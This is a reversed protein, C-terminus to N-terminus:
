PSTSAATQGAARGPAFAEPLQLAPGLLRPLDALDDGVRLEFTPSAAVANAIASFRLLSRAGLGEHGCLVNDRALAVLADARGLRRIASQGGTRPGLILIAALRAPAAGAGVPIVSAFREIPLMREEARGFRGAIGELWPLLAVTRRHVKIARPLGWLRIAGSGPTMVAADDTYLTYGARALALATTTKGAGSPASVLMADGGPLRLAAGHVLRHGGSALAADVALVGATGGVLAESGPACVMDATRREPEARMTLRDGITLEIGHEAERLTAAVGEPLVGQWVLPWDAARGAPAGHRICIRFGPPRRRTTELGGILLMLGALDFGAPADVHLCTGALDFVHRM